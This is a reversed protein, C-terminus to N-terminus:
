FPIDQSAVLAYSREEAWRVLGSWLTDCASVIMPAHHLNGTMVMQALSHFGEPPDPLRVAEDLVSSSSGYLHRHELGLASATRQTLEVALVVLAQEHGRVQANRVKGILEYIDGILVEKIVERFIEPPHSVVLERLGSFYDEPDTLPFIHVFKGHTRAWHGDVQSAEQRLSVEDRVNVEAKWSGACWEYNRTEGPARLVCFMEIDSYPGEENRALSGYLGIAKVVKGYRAILRKAIMQALEMRQQHEMPEPAPYM